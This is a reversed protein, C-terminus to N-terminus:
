NTEVKQGAQRQRASECAVKAILVFNEWIPAYQARIREDTDSFTMHNACTEAEEWDGEIIAEIAQRAFAASFISQAWAKEYEVSLKIVTEIRHQREPREQLCWSRRLKQEM